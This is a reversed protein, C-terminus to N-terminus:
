APKKRKFIACLVYDEGNSFTRDEFCVFEWGENGLVNFTRELYVHPFHFRGIDLYAEDVSLFKYEWM